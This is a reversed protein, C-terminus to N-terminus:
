RIGNRQVFSPRFLLFLAALAKSVVRLGQTLSFKLLSGRTRDKPLLAVASAPHCEAIASAILLKQQLYSTPYRRRTLYDLGGLLRPNELVSSDLLPLTPLGHAQMAKLMRDADAKGPEWGGSASLVYKLLVICEDRPDAKLDATTPEQLAERLGVSFPRPDPKFERLFPEVNMPVDEAAGLVNSVTLPPNKRAALKKAIFLAFPIPLHILPRRVGKEKLIMKVIENFSVLDNGGADYRGRVNGARIINVIARALDDRHLPRFRYKGNGIVPVAPLKSYRVITGFVGSGSGGYILSCRLTVAPISSSELIEDAEAKTQGYIGRNALKSSQTGINVILKVGARECAEVLLKAGGVNVAASDAEDSKRAALHVVADAGRTAKILSPADKMDGEIIVMHPHEPLAELSSPRVLARVSFGENLLTRVVSQGVFGSAGTVLVTRLM